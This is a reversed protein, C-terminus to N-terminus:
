KGLLTGAGRKSVRGWLTTGTHIASLSWGNLKGDCLHTPGPSPLEWHSREGPAQPLRDAQQSTKFMELPLSLPHLLVM